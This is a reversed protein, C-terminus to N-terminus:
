RVRAAVQSGSLEKAREIMEILEKHDQNELDTARRVIRLVDDYSMEAAHPSGRLIEALSAVGFALRTDRGASDFNPATGRTIPTSWERAAADKGPPKARIRVAGIPGDIKDTLILEYLATVQHGSGVEGADVADNRFDGDAIDRNEYGLLRYSKVADPNWQVQIKVDKAIVVLTGTLKEVFVREAQKESDIYYYNGDGKDALQEM